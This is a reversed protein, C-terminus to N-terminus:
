PAARRKLSDNAQRHQSRRWVAAALARLEPDDHRCPGVHRRPVRVMPGRTSAGATHVYLKPTVGSAVHAACGATLATVGVQIVGATGTLLSQARAIQTDEGTQPSEVSLPAAAPNLAIDM